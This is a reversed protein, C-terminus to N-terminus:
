RILVVLEVVDHGRLAYNVSSYYLSGSLSASARRPRQFLFGLPPPSDLLSSTPWYSVHLGLRSPLHRGLSVPLASSSSSFVSSSPPALPPLPPLLTKTAAGIVLWDVGM